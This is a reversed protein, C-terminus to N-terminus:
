DVELLLANKLFSIIQTEDLTENRADIIILQGRPGKKETIGSELYSQYKSDWRMNYEVDNQMGLFEIYITNENIMNPIIFDPIRNEGKNLVANPEYCYEINMKALANAVHKEGTSRVWEGRNTRHFHKISYKQKELTELEHYFGLMFMSQEIPRLRIPFEDIVQSNIQKLEDRIYQATRPSKIKPIHGIEAQAQLRGLHLGPTVSVSAIYKRVVGSNRKGLALFQIFSLVALLRGCHYAKSPHLKNLSVSM